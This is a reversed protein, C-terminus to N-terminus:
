APDRSPPATARSWRWAPELALAPPLGHRERAPVRELGLRCALLAIAGGGLEDSAGYRRDGVVPFGHRSLELRLQHPRGTLPELEWLLYGSSADMGLFTARTLSAKGRPSAFARRKGRVIRSRWELREGVAPETIERVAATGEPLHDLTPGETWARYRKDVLRRAFWGCAEAHTRADKAFLILGSAAHDLRHVPFLRAGLAEELTHGLVPWGRAGGRGPVALVGAPKDAVVFRENEWVRRVLAPTARPAPYARSKM